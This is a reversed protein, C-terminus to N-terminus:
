KGYSKINVKKNIEINIETEFKRVYIIDTIAFLSHGILSHFASTLHLDKTMERILGDNRSYRKTPQPPPCDMGIFQEFTYNENPIVMHESTLMGCGTWAAGCLAEWWEQRNDSQLPHLAPYDRDLRCIATFYFNNPDEKIAEWIRHARDYMERLTATLVDNFAIIDPLIEDKSALARNNIIDKRLRLLGENKPYSTIDNYMLISEEICKIDYDQLEIM